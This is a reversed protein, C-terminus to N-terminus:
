KRNPRKYGFPKLLDDRVKSVYGKRNSEKDREVPPM